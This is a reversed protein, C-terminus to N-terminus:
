EPCRISCFVTSFGQSAIKKPTPYKKDYISGDINAKGLRKLHLHCFLFLFSVGFKDDPNEKVFTVM